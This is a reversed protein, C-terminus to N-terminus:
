VIWRSGLPIWTQFWRETEVKETFTGTFWYINNAISVYAWKVTVHFPKRMWVTNSNEENPGFIIEYEEERYFASRHRRFPHRISTFWKNQEKSLLLGKLEVSFCMQILPHHYFFYDVPSYHAHQPPYSISVVHYWPYRQFLHLDISSLCTAGPSRPEQQLRSWWSLM